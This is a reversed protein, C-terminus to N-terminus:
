VGYDYLEPDSVVVRTDSDAHRGDLTMIANHMVASFEREWDAPPREERKCCMVTAALLVAEHFDRPLVAALDGNNWASSPIYTIRLTRSGSPIPRYGFTRRGAEDSGLYYAGDRVGASSVGVTDSRTRYLDAEYLSIHDLQFGQESDNTVDWVGVFSIPEEDFKQPSIDALAGERGGPYTVTITRTFFDEDHQMIATRVRSLARSIYRDLVGDSWFPDTAQGDGGANLDDRIRQRMEAKTM